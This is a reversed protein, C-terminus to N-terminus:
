SGRIEAVTNFIPTDPLAESEVNVRVVPGQNNVTLRSLLGYDECGISVAPIRQTPATSINQHGWNGPWRSKFVGVAGADELRATLAQEGGVGSVRENWADQAEARDTRM